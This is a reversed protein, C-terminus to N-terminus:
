TGARVPMIAMFNRVCVRMITAMITVVIVAMVVVMRMTVTMNVMVVFFFSRRPAMRMSTTTNTVMTITPTNRRQPKM